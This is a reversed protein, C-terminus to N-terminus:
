ANAERIFAAVLSREKKGPEREVGSAVDVAYPSVSLIAEKVNEPNLGGSLIVRFQKHAEVFKAALELDILRGTGGFAGASYADILIDPTGFRGMNELSSVDKLPIAKIFPLGAKAFHGCFGENESGHFQVVDIFPLGFVAEAEAITPNVLVAVKTVFPPLRRIWVAEKQLDVYRKSGTWTNFGLADAGLEIAAEADERNTIGCIKVRQRVRM